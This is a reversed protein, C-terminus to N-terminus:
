RRQPRTWLTLRSFLAVLEAQRGTGTKEFIARLQTRLTERSLGTAAAAQPLSHGQMLLRALRIQAPTLGFLDSLLTAEPLPPPQIEHLVLVALAGTFLGQAGRRLPLLRLIMAPRSGAPAVAFSLLPPLRSAAIAELAVLIQRGVAEDPLALREGGGAAERRALFAANAAVVRGGLGLVAAPLDIEELLELQRDLQGLGMRATITAARALHPRLHQLFRIQESDLPGRSLQRQVSFILREGAPLDVVSYAGWGLDRPRLFEQHHPDTAMEERTYLETYQLFRTGSNGLLRRSLDSRWHWGEAFWERAANRLGPSSIHEIRQGMTILSVGGDGVQFLHEMERFVTEWLEPRLAAEYIRDTLADIDEDTLGPDSGEGDGAPALRRTLSCSRLIAPRDLREAM